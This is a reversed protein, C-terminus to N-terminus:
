RSKFKAMNLVNDSTSEVPENRKRVEEMIKESVEKQYEKDLKSYHDALKLDKHGTMAVVADLGGGIQRALKAMGHRLIHTGSYPLKAKRQAGRYNVQITSYNLPSGEVHFVFDNGDIKFAERRRLVAMLENTMHVPRAEKNKPHPNLKLYSKNSQDWQATEMITIRRNHFDIRSWQLGAVEGIRSATFYQFLAVDKYLPKLYSFFTLADDLNIAMEKVPKARIFGLSKHKTKVPNTLTKSENEFEESSKYWNFITVFLNLENDLNCRKARGRSNGVYDDSKFHAVQKNVWSTLKSPTIEDMTLQDLEKLLEFRRHWISKTSNALTPFHSKQMALWVVSLKSFKISKEEKGSFTARWYSADQISDFSKQFKEGLIKKIALYRGTVRHKYIGPRNKVKVYNFTTM